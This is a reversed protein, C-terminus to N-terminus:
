STISLEASRSKGSVEMVVVDPAITLVSEFVPSKGTVPKDKLKVPVSTLLKLM